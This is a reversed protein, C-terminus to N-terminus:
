MPMSYSLVVHEYGDGRDSYNVTLNVSGHDFVDLSGGVAANIFSDDEAQYSPLRYSQFNLNTNRVSITEDDDEQEQVGFIEGFVRLGQTIDGSAVVGYRLQMSKRRQEGWAYNAITDGTERYSDVTTNIYQMGLAPAVHWTDSSLVDYGALVDVTWAHGDTDGRATKTVSGLKVDRKLDDYSLVSLAATTDVFIKGQRYGLLGSLGWSDSEFDTGDLDLEQQGVTLAVGYILSETAIFTRGVTLSTNETESELGAEFEDTAMDGAVFLRGKGINWRSRRLEGGSVATQTRASTLAMEPLMGVAQPGAIIDLLYDAFIESTAEAPHLIDNFVLKRPNPDTGDIGYTPHEVCAGHVTSYCMSLQDLTTGGVALDGSAFGYAEANEFVYNILGATDVPIINVDALSLSALTEVGANYGATANSFGATVVADGFIQVGPTIGLDPVNAVMIYQAGADALDSVAQVYNTAVALLQEGVFAERDEPPVFLSAIVADRIDNGGGDILVLARSSVVGGSNTLYANSVGGVTGYENGITDIGTGSISNMIHAVRYGGVAYNSGGDIAPELDLGVVGAFIQPSIPAYVGSGPSTENTFRLGDGFNGSDLLSDGFVIFQNFDSQANASLAMGSFISVALYKKLTNFM